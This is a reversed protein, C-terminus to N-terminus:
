RPHIQGRFGTRTQRLNDHYHDRNCIFWCECQGACVFLERTLCSRKARYDRSLISREAKAHRQTNFDVRYLGYRKEFGDSWEFNDMLVGCSTDM